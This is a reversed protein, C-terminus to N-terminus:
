FKISINFGISRATPMTYFLVGQAYNSVSFSGEPDYNELARYLFFLNRGTIGVSLGKLFSNEIYKGPLNYNLSAERM